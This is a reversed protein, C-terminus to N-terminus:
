LHQAILKQRKRLTGVSIGLSKAIADPKTEGTSKIEAKYTEAAKKLAGDRDFVESDKVIWKESRWIIEYCPEGGVIGMDRVFVANTPSEETKPLTRFFLSDNKNYSM